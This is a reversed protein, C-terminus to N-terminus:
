SLGYLRTFFILYVVVTALALAAISLWRRLSLLAFLLATLAAILSALVLGAAFNGSDFVFKAKVYLILSLAIVACGFALPAYWTRIREFSM